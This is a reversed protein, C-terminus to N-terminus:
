LAAGPSASRHALIFRVSLTAGSNLEPGRDLQWTTLRWEEGNLDLVSVVSGPALSLPRAGDSPRPPELRRLRRSCDLVALALLCVALALVGLDGSM